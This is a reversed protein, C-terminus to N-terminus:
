VQGKVAVNEVLQRFATLLRDPAEGKSVFADAGISLAAPESEPRRSLVIVRPGASPGRLAYLLAAAPRGPLEWDLLVLDPRFPGAETVFGELDSSERLVIDVPEQELLTRLSSRVREDNEAVLVRVPRDQTM